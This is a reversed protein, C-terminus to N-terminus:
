WVMEADLVTLQSQKLSKDSSVPELRIEIDFADDAKRKEQQIDQPVTVFFKVLQGTVVPAFFAYSGLYTKKTDSQSQTADIKYVMIVFRENRTITDPRVTIEVGKLQAAINNKSRALNLRVSKNQTLKLGNGPITKGPASQMQQTAAVVEGWRFTDGNPHPIISIVGTLLLSMVTSLQLKMSYRDSLLRDIISNKARSM